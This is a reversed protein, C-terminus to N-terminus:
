PHCCGDEVHLRKLRISEIPPEVNDGSKFGISRTHSISPRRIAALGGGGVKLSNVSYQWRGDTRHFMFRNENSFATMRWDTSIWNRPQLILELKWQRHVATRM